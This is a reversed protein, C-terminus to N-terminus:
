ARQQEEIESMVEARFSKVSEHLLHGLLAVPTVGFHAALDEGEKGVIQELATVGTMTLERALVAKAVGLRDAMAQLDAEAEDSLRLNVSPRKILKRNRYM